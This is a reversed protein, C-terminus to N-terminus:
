QSTRKRKHARAETDSEMRRMKMKLYRIQGKNCDEAGFSTFKRGCPLLKPGNQKTKERFNEELRVVWWVGKGPVM